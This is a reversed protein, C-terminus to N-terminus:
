SWNVEAVMAATKLGMEHSFVPIPSIVRGKPIRRHQQQKNNPFVCRQWMHTYLRHLTNTTHGELDFGELVHLVKHLAHLLLRLVGDGGFILLM